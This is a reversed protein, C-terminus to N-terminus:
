GLMGAPATQPEGLAIKKYESRTLDSALKPALRVDAAVVENRISQEM